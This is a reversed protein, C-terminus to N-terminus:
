IVTLHPTKGRVRGIRWAQLGDQKAKSAFEDANRGSIGVVLGGSTQPDFMLARLTEDVHPSFTIRDGVWERNSGEGTTHFGDTAACELAGDLLPIASSNLEIGVNSHSAMEWLHGALGFGTIDTAGRCGAGLALHMAHRNLEKMWDTAEEVWKSKAKQSKAASLISGTGIPKTLFLADGRRLGDKKLLRSPRTLGLVSLGFKPEDDWVTHGGAVVGGAAAVRDAGGELIRSISGLPLDEPFAAINLALVVEAGMAFVDSMANAAAIAGYDYPDDVIPAFFDCTAVVATRSNIRYVAADDTSGLGVLLDPHAQVDFKTALPSLVQALAEPGM